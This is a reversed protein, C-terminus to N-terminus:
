DAFRIEASPVAAIPRAFSVMNPLTANEHARIQAATAHPKDHTTHADAALTVAFGLGAARRTTTDVCFECAYGTVVVGDVGHERLLAELKTGMFSDPTTKRVLHDTPEITLGHALQWFDSGHELPSGPREHQIFVVPCNAKRAATALSNIRSVVEDAELPRPERDLLGHQVDIVLLASKNM